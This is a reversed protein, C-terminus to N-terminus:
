GRWGVVQGVVGCAGVGGGSYLVTRKAIGGSCGVTVGQSVVGVDVM